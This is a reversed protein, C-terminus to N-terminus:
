SRHNEPHRAAVRVFIEPKNAAATYTAATVAIAGILIAHGLLSFALLTYSGIALAFAIAWMWGLLQLVMHRTNFDAIHRLPNVEHNFFFDWASVMIRRM